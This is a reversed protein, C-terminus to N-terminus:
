GHHACREAVVLRRGAAIFDEEDSLHFAHLSVRRPLAPHADLRLNQLPARLAHKHQAVTKASALSLEWVEALGDPALAAWAQEFVVACRLADHSRRTVQLATSCRVWSGLTRVSQPEIGLSSLSTRLRDRDPRGLPTVILPTTTPHPALSLAEDFAALWRALSDVEHATPLRTM